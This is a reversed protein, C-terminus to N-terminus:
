HCSSDGNLKLVFLGREISSVVITGSSFYPYVSWSGLFQLSSCDPAVDFFAKQTITGQKAQSVDLVRLGDCYNALYAIDGIIYLNHDISTDKAIYSTKFIPKALDTVDWVLTRTRGGPTTGFMEDLEDNLLLHSSDHLLWGQHTYQSGQYGTRSILFMKSKDSVDVITLTDENYCFCVEKGSFKVDPGSYIVCQADHTYGDASYCGAYTPVIPNSIDVIHLGGACTGTGVSYAFGTEENIVLNHANGFEGYFATEKLQPPQATNFTNNAFVFPRSEMSRFQTLDVVQMGHGRAESV